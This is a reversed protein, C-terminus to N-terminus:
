FFDIAYQLISAFNAPYELWIIDADAKFWTMQRKAYRRTDRKILEAAEELSLEGALHAAAEKYGIARMAKLERGYGAALLGRVEELLGGALMRDVRAEIRRYLEQREVDIGIRLSTYRQDSFGHERQHRSLPTGTLRQVELARIIRVLNNPHIRAALEPDVQRLKELMAANGERRAEAQLEQRVPGAGSPSDVLGQLLARLYLGTGGTVIVKKGRGIIDSIAADAADAFDAASFLRDPDAVDLLHHPILARQEPSPKATGINMGRYVQMSDANVIEADLERALALSLETKGSATPGAIVLIKRPM